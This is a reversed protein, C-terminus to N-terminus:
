FDKTGQESYDYIKPPGNDVFTPVAPREPMELLTPDIKISESILEVV